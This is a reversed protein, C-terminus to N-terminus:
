RDIRREDGKSRRGLWYRFDWQFWGYPDINNIWSM